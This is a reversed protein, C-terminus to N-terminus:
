AGPNLIRYLQLIMISAEARTATEGPAFSTSTRGKMVGKQVVLAIGDRAWSSISTEDEYVKLIEQVQDQNLAAAKNKYVLTQAIIVAMQERTIEIDPYFETATCGNVIGAQAAANIAQFYWQSAPVDAFRGRAVSSDQLGVAYALMATFEARTIKRDPEFKNDGVGGALGLSVMKLIGDRAWHGDLDVFNASGPNTGPNEVGPQKVEQKENNQTTSQQGGGGGPVAGGQPNTVLITYVSNRLPLLNPHLKKNNLTYKIEDSFGAFLAQFVSFHKPWQIVEQMSAYLNSDFNAATLTGRAAVNTQLDDVFSRIESTSAGNATLRNIIDPYQSALVDYASTFTGALANGPVNLVLALSISLSLIIHLLKNIKKARM